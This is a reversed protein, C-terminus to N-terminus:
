ELYLRGDRWNVSLLIAGKALIIVSSLLLISGGSLGYTLLPLALVLRSRPPTAGDNGVRGLEYAWPIPLLRPHHTLPLWASPLRLLGLEALLLDVLAAGTKEAVWNNRAAGRHDVLLDRRGRRVFVRM